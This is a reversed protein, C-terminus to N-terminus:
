PAARQQEARVVWRHYLDPQQVPDFPSVSPPRRKSLLIWGLYDPSDTEKRLGWQEGYDLRKDLEDRTIM